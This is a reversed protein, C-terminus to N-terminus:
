ASDAVLQFLILVPVQLFKQVVNLENPVVAFSVIGRAGYNRM